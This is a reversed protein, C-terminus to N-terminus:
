LVFAACEVNLQLFTLVRMCSYMRILFIEGIEHAYYFFHFSLCIAPYIM